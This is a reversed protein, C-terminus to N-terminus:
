LDDAPIGFTDCSDIGDQYGQAFWFQRQASSGHTWSEQNIFGTSQEQIHNDGVTAAADLADVLQQETPAQLYPVGSEDEQEAMAGVWAGALCDAQLEMRVGNSTPGTGDAPNDRMIGTINQVHHAYEHALVYLQALPGATAGFQERMIQFFSPDIYVGEDAPCYFPGVANSATGCPTGTSGDVVTLTPERYGELSESWFQDIALSAAAIRCDDSANADAGSECRTITSEGTAPQEGDGALGLLGSFDGGTLMNLVLVAIGVLGVAGGGAIAATRGRGRRARNGSVDADPTFTM